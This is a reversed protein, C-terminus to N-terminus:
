PASRVRFPIEGSIPHGDASATRWAVTYRGPALPAEVASSLRKDDKPDVVVAGVKVVGAPGQLRIRSLRLQPAQSFWLTLTGPSATLVTDKAPMSGVLRLHAESAASRAGALGAAMLAVVAIMIPVRGAQRM